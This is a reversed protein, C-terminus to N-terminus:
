NAIIQCIFFYIIELKIAELYIVILRNNFYFRALEEKEHSSQRDINFIYLFSRKFYKWLNKISFKM